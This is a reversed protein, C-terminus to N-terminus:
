KKLDFDLQGEPISYEFVGRRLCKCQIPIDNAKLEAIISNVACVDAEQVIQRTTHPGRLLLDRVRRLRESNELKAYHM